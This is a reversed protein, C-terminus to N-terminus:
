PGMPGAAYGFGILVNGKWPMLSVASFYLLGWWYRPEQWSTDSQLGSAYAVAVGLPPALSWRLRRHLRKRKSIM